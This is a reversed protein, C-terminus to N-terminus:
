FSARSEGVELKRWNRFTSHTFESIAGAEDATWCDLEALVRAIAVEAGRAAGDDVKLAFGLGAHPIAGCYVGEAGVKIFLRPVAQMIRTDFKATGAVMFPNARVSSAIREGVPNGQAFLRAFGRASNELPLAWTPVSCGDVGWPAHITDADCYDDLVKAVAQQVPHDKMVYGQLPAGIHKALALMGAHKGSCNNHIARPGQGARVLVARDDMREPWHTGCEYTDEDVGAKRLMSAAVRVHEAEGSHSACCLAIEEDTFEFRDAAGSTIVPVCQFAKVASRPFIPKAIDGDAYITQGKANVVAFAGRHQSEVTNGRLIEALVPNTNTM